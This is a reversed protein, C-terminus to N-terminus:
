AWQVLIGTCGSHWLSSCPADIRHNWGVPLLGVRAGVVSGESRWLRYLLFRFLGLFGVHTARSRLDVRRRRCGDVVADVRCVTLLLSRQFFLARGSDQNRKPAANKTEKKVHM